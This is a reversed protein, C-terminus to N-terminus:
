YLLGETEVAGLMLNLCQVAAGSAGKGLNDFTANVTMREDNGWVTIEMADSGSLRNAPAFGDEPPEAVRVLTQAGYHAEYVAKLQGPTVPRSLLRLFIPVSVSMGSYFDAVTPLFVPPADLSCVAQMERLHKHNQSLGYVRPSDLATDTREAEYQAIMKRGGGSYGTLSFCSAPYDSGVLGAARLPYLLSVFGSAHCGPVTVRNGAVIAARHAASLEPFGYAWGPATRHATSADIVRVAPNEIMSVAEIAAADPLCLIALDCANLLETRAAPDKRREPDIALLALDKRQALRERIRLGTTGEAGDIFVRTM